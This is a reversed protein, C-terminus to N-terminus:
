KLDRKVYVIKGIIIFLIMLIFYAGMAIMTENEMALVNNPSLTEFPSLYRLWQAKDELLNGLYGMMYSGLVAVSTITASSIKSSVGSIMFALALFLFPTTSSMKSITIFDMMDFTDGAMFGCILSPVIASILVCMVGIFGTLLKSFFIESRSVELSYLFEISKSKEEKYLLNAGFTAAFISVAILIMNYIMGYYTIYNDMNSFDGMGFLELLEEPMADMKMQAMEKISPFLVMYLFMLLFISITWGLIIKKQIKIEFKTLKTVNKFDFKKM